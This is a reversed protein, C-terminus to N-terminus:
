KNPVMCGQNDMIPCLGSSVPEFTFKSGCGGGPISVNWGPAMPGSCYPQGGSGDTGDAFSSVDITHDTPDWAIGTFDVSSAAGVSIGDLSVDSLTYGPNAGISFTQTVGTPVVTLGSPSVSSGNDASATVNSDAFAAVPFLTAAAVLATALLNKM